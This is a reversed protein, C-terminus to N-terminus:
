IGPPEENEDEGNGAWGITTYAYMFDDVSLEGYRNTRNGPGSGWGEGDGKEEEAVPPCIPDPQHSNSGGSPGSDMNGDGDDRVRTAETAGWTYTDAFPDGEVRREEGEVTYIVPGTRKDQEVAPAPHPLTPALPTPGSELPHLIPPSPSRLSTQNSPSSPLTSFALDQAVPPRGWTASQLVFYDWFSLLISIDPGPSPLRVM